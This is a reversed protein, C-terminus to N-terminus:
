KKKLEYESEPVAQQLQSTKLFLLAEQTAEIEMRTRCDFSMSGMHSTLLCNAIQALPGGYPEQEFVDLAAGAIIKDQLARALDAENVIGGRATNILFASSKMKKLRKHDLLNKTQSTLPVHLSVLDSHALLEELEVQEIGPKSIKQTDYVLIRKPSFGQLHQVVLSGIRGCGILGITSEGLRGGYLRKWQNAHMQQNALSINRMLDLMLGLTLEAVAPAPAEATYSVAIHRRRAELLDVGDLGVGVRAIVKLHSARDLVKKSILETGAILASYPPIMEALEDESLKRGLPNIVYEIDSEAQLLELPKKVHEGFPVTSILIKKKM